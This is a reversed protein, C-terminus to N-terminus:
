IGKKRKHTVSVVSLVIIVGTAIALWLGLAILLNGEGTDTISFRDTFPADTYTETLIEPVYAETPPETPPEYTYDYDENETPAYLTTIEETPQETPYTEEEIEEPETATIHDIVNNVTDNIIGNADDVVGSFDEVTDDIADGVNDIVDNIYGEANNLASSVGDEIQNLYDEPAAMAVPMSFVTIMVSIITASLIKIIKKKM